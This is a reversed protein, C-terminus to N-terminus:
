RGDTLTGKSAKLVETVIEALALPDLHMVKEIPQGHEDIEGTEISHVETKTAHEKIFQAISKLAACGRMWGERQPPAQGEWIDQHGMIEAVKEILGLAQMAGAKGATHIAKQIDDFPADVPLADNM